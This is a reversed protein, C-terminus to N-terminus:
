WSQGAPAHRQGPALPQVALGRGVDAVTRGAAPLRHSDGVQLPGDDSQDQSFVRQHGPTAGAPGSHATALSMTVMSVQNNASTDGEQRLSVPCRRRETTQRAARQQRHFLHAPRRGDHGDGRREAVRWAGKAIQKVEALPVTRGAFTRQNTIAVNLSTKPAFVQFGKPMSWHRKGNDDKAPILVTKVARAMLPLSKVLTVTQNM